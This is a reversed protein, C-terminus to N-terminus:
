RTDIRKLRELMSYEGGHTRVYDEDDDMLQETWEARPGTVILAREKRPPATNALRTLNDQAYEPLESLAIYNLALHLPSTPPLPGLLAFSPSPLLAPPSTPSPPFLASLPIAIDSAGM